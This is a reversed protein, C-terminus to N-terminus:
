IQTRRRMLRTASPFLLLPPFSTSTPPAVM